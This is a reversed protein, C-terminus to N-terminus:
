ILNDDLLSYINFFFFAITYYASQQNIEIKITFLSYYTLLRQQANSSDIM